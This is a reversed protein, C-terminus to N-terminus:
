RCLQVHPVVLVCLAVFLLTPSARQSYTGTNCAAGGDRAGRGAVVSESRFIGRPRVFGVPRVCRGCGSQTRANRAGARRLGIFVGGTGGVSGTWGGRGACGGGAGGGGVRGGGGAASLNRDVFEVCDVYRGRWGGDLGM